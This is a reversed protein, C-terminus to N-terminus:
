RKLVKKYVFHDGESIKLLYLGCPVNGPILISEEANEIWVQESVPYGSITFFQINRLGASNFQLTIGADFPNPSLRILGTKISLPLVNLPDESAYAGIDLLHVRPLFDPQSPSFTFVPTHIPSTAAALPGAARILPSNIDPSFDFTVQDKFGPDAGTINGSVSQVDAATGSHSKRWGTKLWNHYLNVRGSEDLIGLSTGTASTYIVNNRVDATEDNTSLRLLTTNGSRYSVVTNFYFYLTGKRYTATTGNDGGYHCIQSNGEGDPEILVNSYVFTERYQPLQIFEPYDSEVLDLQRNGGEIRNYRIVTGSSRDKLNNGLCGARLKGFKNFQYIIGVSETYTNHELIRGEMGNGYIHCGEILIDSSQHATFIGNGCDHVICNRITIHDGKEVFIAASNNLYERKVGGEDTFFYGPRASRVELNELVIYSAKDQPSSTGGIKIIGREESWFDLALRTTADIGEIVPLAGSASPVGTIVVPHTQTGTAGIVFKEKYPASQYHIRVTDGAMLSEWPVSSVSAYPQGPGVSYITASLPCIALLFVFLAASINKM